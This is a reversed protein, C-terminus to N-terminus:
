INENDKKRKNYETEIANRMLQSINISHSSKLEQLMEFHKQSIRARINKYLNEKMNVNNEYTGVFDKLKQFIILLQISNMGMALALPKRRVSDTFKGM